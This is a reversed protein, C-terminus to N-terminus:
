KIVKNLKTYIIINFAKLIDLLLLTEVGPIALDQYRPDPLYIVKTVFNNAEIQDLDEAAIEIPVSNHQLYADTTPHAPWVQLTPYLNLGERGPVHALKLRYTANQPFNYRAPAVLQNEAFGGPVLWGVSMGAPGIFRVQTTKIAVPGSAAPTALMPLVGPGPGDVMPGPRQMLAAPPAVYEDHRPVLQQGDVACGVCVVVATALAFLYYKM